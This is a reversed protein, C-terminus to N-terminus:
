PALVLFYQHPLFTQESVIKLGAAKAQSVFEDRAIKHEPPPGVPLERKHFDINVIRGGPKLSASLRKLYAVGNPFHHYTDVILILDCSKRPILPDDPQGLVPSVNAIGAKKLRERLADLIRPEVDVALVNGDAGVARALPKTFYGPGAGIECVIQGSKLELAKIVEAPKQWEDRAPDEMRALYSSLDDPNGHKGQGHDHPAMTMVTVMALIM